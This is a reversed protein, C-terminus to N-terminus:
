ALYKGPSAGAREQTWAAARGLPASNSISATATLYPRSIRPYAGQFPPAYFFVPPFESHGLIGSGLRLFIQLRGKCPLGLGPVLIGIEGGLGLLLAKLLDRGEEQFGRVVLFLVGLHPELLQRADAAGRLVQRGRGVALVVLPRVHVLAKGLGGLLLAEGLQGGLEAQHGGNLLVM